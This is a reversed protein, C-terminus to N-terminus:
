GPLEANSSHVEPWMTPGAAGADPVAFFLLIGIGFGILAHHIQCLSAGDLVDWDAAASRLGACVGQVLIRSGINQAREKDGSIMSTYWYM